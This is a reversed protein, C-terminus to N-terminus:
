KRGYAHGWRWSQGRDRWVRAGVAASGTDWASGGAAGQAYVSARREIDFGWRGILKKATRRNGTATGTVLVDDKRLGEWSGERSGGTWWRRGRRGGLGGGVQPQQRAGAGAALM